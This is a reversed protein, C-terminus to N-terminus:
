SRRLSLGDRRGVSRTVNGEGCGPVCSEVARPMPRGRLPDTRPLVWANAKGLLVARLTRDEECDILLEAFTRSQSYSWFEGIRDVPEFAPLMLVHLLEARPAPRPPDLTAQTSAGDRQAGRTSALPDLPNLTTEPLAQPSTGM